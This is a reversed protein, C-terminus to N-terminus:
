NATFIVTSTRLNINEVNFRVSEVSPLPGGVTLLVLRGDPSWLVESDVQFLDFILNTRLFVQSGVFFQNIVSIMNSNLM